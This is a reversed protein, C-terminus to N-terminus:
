EMGAVKVVKRWKEVEGRLFRDFEEPSSGIAVGGEVQFKQVVDPARLIQVIEAHLRNVITPPTKRPALLGSWVSYEYDPLGSEALTPIDPLVKSRERTTVAIAKVKGARVLQSAAVIDNFSMSIDGSLLARTADSGGKYPVHLLEIGALIRFLEASMHSSSGVGASGFSLKGPQAKALAILERLNAVPISTGINLLAPSASVQSVPAFDMIPDYGLNKGSAAGVTHPISVYLLTYGDPKATAVHQGAINGSAGARNEVVFASKLRESLKTAILRAALDTGGGPSFGVVIRTTGSPYSEAAWVLPTAFSCTAFAMWAAMSRSANNMMKLGKLFVDNPPVYGAVHPKRLVPIVACM